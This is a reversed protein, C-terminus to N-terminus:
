LSMAYVFNEDDGGDDDCNAHCVTDHTARKLCHVEHVAHHWVFTLRQPAWMQWKCNAMAHVCFTAINTLQGFLKSLNFQFTKRYKRNKKKKWKKNAISILSAIHESLFVKHALYIAVIFVNEGKKGWVFYEDNKINEKSQISIPWSAIM